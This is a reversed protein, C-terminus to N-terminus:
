VGKKPFKYILDCDGVVKYLARLQECRQRIGKRYVEEVQSTYHRFALDIMREPHHRYLTPQLSNAEVFEQIRATEDTTQIGAYPRDEQFYFSARSQGSQGRAAALGAERTIFHDIHEKIALPFVLATDPQAAWSEALAQIRRYIQWDATEFDAYMGHPFEMESEAPKKSRVFCEKEGLLEYRYAHEGLLEDLCELDEIIRNGTALKVRALSTDFNAAGSRVQYNSRSFLLLIHFSKTALLNQARLELVYGGLGFLFDDYHPSFMVIHTEPIVTEISTIEM